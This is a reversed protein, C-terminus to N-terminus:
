VKELLIDVPFKIKQLEIDIIKELYSDDLGWLEYEEGEIQKQISHVQNGIEDFLNIILTISTHLVLNCFFVNYRKIRHTQVFDFDIDSSSM